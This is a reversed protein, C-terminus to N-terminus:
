SISSIVIIIVNIYLSYNNILDLHLAYKYFFAELLCQQM